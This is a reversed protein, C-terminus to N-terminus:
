RANRFIALKNKRDMVKLFVLQGAVTVGMSLGPIRFFGCQRLNAPDSVDILTLGYARDAVFAVSGLVAM